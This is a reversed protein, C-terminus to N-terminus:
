LNKGQNSQLVWSVHLLLHQRPIRLLMCPKWTKDVVKVQTVSLFKSTPSKSRVGSIVRLFYSQVSPCNERSCIMCTVLHPLYWCAQSPLPLGSDPADPPVYTLYRLRQVTALTPPATLLRERERPTDGRNWGRMVLPHPPHRLQRYHAAHRVKGRWEDTTAEM